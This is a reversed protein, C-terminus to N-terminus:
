TSRGGKNQIVILASDPLDAAVRTEGKLPAIEMEMSAPARRIRRRALPKVPLAPYYTWRARTPFSLLISSRM